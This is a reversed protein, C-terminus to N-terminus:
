KGKLSIELKNKLPEIGKIIFIIFCILYFIFFIIIIISGLNKTLVRKSFVLKFCKLNQYNSYKLVDYFSEFITEPTFQEKEETKKLNNESIECSCKIINSGSHYGSFECYDQCQTDSNNYIYDIRDSLLMDSNNSSKYPTCIDNYFPDNIDFM